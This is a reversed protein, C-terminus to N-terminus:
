ASEYFALERVEPVIGLAAALTYFMRLGAQEREGLDYKVNERLYEAGRRVKAPDGPFYRAAVREPDALGRDRAENLATVDGPAVAGPRGAWFAFVFPLGTMGVWEEALDVKDLGLSEHDAFLANDGIVLAADHQDLMATM